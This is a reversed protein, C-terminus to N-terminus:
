NPCDAKRHGVQNCRFPPLSMLFVRNRFSSRSSIPQFFSHRSTALSPPALVAQAAKLFPPAIQRAIAPRAVTSAPVAQGVPPVFAGLLVLAPRSELPFTRAILNAIGPSVVTSATAVLLAEAKPMVVIVILFYCHFFSHTPGSVEPNSNFRHLAISKAIVQSAAISAIEPPQRIILPLIHFSRCFACWSWSRGSLSGLQRIFEDSFPQFLVHYSFAPASTHLLVLLFLTLTQEGVIRISSVTNILAEFHISIPCPARTESPWEPVSRLRLGDRAEVESQGARRCPMGPIRLSYQHACCPASARLRRM